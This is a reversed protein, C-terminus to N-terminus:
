PVTVLDPATTSTPDTAPSTSSTTVTDPTATLPTFGEPISLTTPVVDPPVTTEPATETPQPCETANGAVVGNPLTIPTACGFHSFQVSMVVTGGDAFHAVSRASYIYGDDGVGITVTSGIFGQDALTGLAWEIAAAQQPSTGSVDGLQEPSLAVEYESVNVGNVESEGVAIAGETQAPTLMLYGTPNALAIAVVPGQRPGLASVATQTAADLEQRETTM